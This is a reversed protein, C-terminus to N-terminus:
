LHCDDDYLATARGFCVGTGQLRSMTATVPLRAGDDGLDRMMFKSARDFSALCRRDLRDYVEIDDLDVCVNYSEM